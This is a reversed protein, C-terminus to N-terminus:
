RVKKGILSKDNTAAGKGGKGTGVEKAGKNNGPYGSGQKKQSSKAKGKVMNDPAGMDKPSGGAGPYPKATQRSHGKHEGGTSTVAKADTTKLPGTGKQNNISRTNTTFTGGAGIEKGEANSPAAVSSLAVSEDVEEKDDEEDLDEDKEEDLEEEDEDLEEDKKEDLEEDKDKDLDEDDDEFMSEETEEESDYDMGDTDDDGGEYDMDDMDDGGEYDMGGEDDYDMDGGDLDEGSLREFEAKLENFADEVSVILDGLDAEGGEGADMGMDVDFEAEGDGEYDMEDEVVGEESEIEDMDSRIEGTLDDEMDYDLSDESIEDDELEENIRRALSVFYQHMLEDAAEDEENLVLEFAEILKRIESKNSM